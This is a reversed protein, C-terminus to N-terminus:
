GEVIVTQIDIESQANWYDQDHYFHLVKELDHSTLEKLKIVVDYGKDKM